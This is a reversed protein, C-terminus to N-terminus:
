SQFLKSLDQTVLGIVPRLCSIDGLLNQFDSLTKLQNRRIHVKQPRVKQLSIKFELFNISNGRQVNENAIQLGWGRM